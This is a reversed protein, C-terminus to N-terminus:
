CDFARQIKECALCLTLAWFEWYRSGTESMLWRVCSAVSEFSDSRKNTISFYLEAWQWLGKNVLRTTWVLEGLQQRNKFGDSAESHEPSWSPSSVASRSSWGVQPVLSWSPTVSSSPHTSNFFFKFFLVALHHICFFLCLFCFSCAYSIFVSIVPM